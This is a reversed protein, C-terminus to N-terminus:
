VLVFAVPLRRGAHKWEIGHEAERWGVRRAVYPQRVDLEGGAGIADVVGCRSMVISHDVALTRRGDVPRAGFMHSVHPLVPDTHDDAVVGGWRHGAAPRADEQM